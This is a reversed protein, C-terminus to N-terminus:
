RSERSHNAPHLSTFGSATRKSCPKISEESLGSQNSLFTTTNVEYDGEPKCFAIWGGKQFVKGRLNKELIREVEPFKYGVAVFGEVRCDGPNTDYFVVFVTKAEEANLGSFSVTVDELKSPM